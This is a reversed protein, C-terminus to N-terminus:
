AGSDGLSAAISRGAMAFGLIGIAYAVIGFRSPEIFAIALLLSTILGFADSGGSSAARRRALSDILIGVTAFSAALAHGSDALAFGFPVFALSTRSLIFNLTAIAPSARKMQPTIAAVLRNLVFLALAIYNVHLALGAAAAIGSAFGVGLLVFPHIGARELASVVRMLPERFIANSIRLVLDSRSGHAKDSM